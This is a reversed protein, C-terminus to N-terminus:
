LLLLLLLRVLVLVGCAACAHTQGVSFRKVRGLGHALSWRSVTAGVVAAKIAPRLCVGVGGLM